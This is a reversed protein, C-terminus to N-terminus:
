HLPKGRRYSECWRCQCNSKDPDHDYLCIACECNVSHRGVVRPSTGPSGLAGRFSGPQYPSNTYTESRTKREPMLGRLGDKLGWIGFVTFAAAGTFLIVQWGIIGKASLGLEFLLLAVIISGAGCGVDELAAM